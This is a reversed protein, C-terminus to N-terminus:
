QHVVFITREAFSLEFFDNDSLVLREGPIFKVVIHPMLAVLIPSILCDIVRVSRGLNFAHLKSCESTQDTIALVLFLERVLFAQSPMHFRRVLLGEAEDTKLAASDKYSLLPDVMHLLQPLMDLVAVRGTVPASLNQGVGPTVEALLEEEIAVDKAFM